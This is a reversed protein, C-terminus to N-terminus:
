EPLPQFGALAAPDIQYRASKALFDARKLTSPQYSDWTATPLPSYATYTSGYKGVAVCVVDAAGANLLFNRATEFAHSETTFDDIVIVRRGACGPKQATLRITQLQDDLRPSEGKWRLFAAKPAERHRQILDPQAQGRFLRSIITAGRALLVNRGGTHGPYICWIPAQGGHREHWGELYLSALLHLSLYESLAYAGRQRDVNEKLLTRIGTDIATDPDLLARVTVLRQRYDRDDVRYYWLSTKLFFTEVADVFRDPDSVPIGYQLPTGAWGAHFLAVDHHVTEYLDNKADGLYVM